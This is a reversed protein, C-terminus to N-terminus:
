LVHGIIVIWELKAKGYLMFGLMPLLHIKLKVIQKNLHCQGGDKFKNLLFAKSAQNQTHVNRM